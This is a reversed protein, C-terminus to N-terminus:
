FGVACGDRRSESGAVYGGDLRRIIQAAGFDLDTAPTLRHGRAALGRQAERPMHEEIWLEDGVVRWRPADIAAQPNQDSVLMRSVVQVHGQPQM